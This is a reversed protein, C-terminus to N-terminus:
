ELYWAGTHENVFQGSADTYNVCRGKEVEEIELDDISLPMGDKDVWPNYEQLDKVCKKCLCVHLKKM